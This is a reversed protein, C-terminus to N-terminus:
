RWVRLRGTTRDRRKEREIHSDEEGPWENVALHSKAKAERPPLHPIKDSTLTTGNISIRSTSKTMKMIMGRWWIPSWASKGCCDALGSETAPESAIMTWTRGITREPDTLRNNLALSQRNTQLLDESEASLVNCKQLTIARELKVRHCLNEIEHM